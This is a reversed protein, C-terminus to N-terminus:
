IFIGKGRSMQKAMADHDKKYGIILMLELIQEGTRLSYPKTNHVLTSGNLPPDNL